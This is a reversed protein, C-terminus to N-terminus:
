PKKYKRFTYQKKESGIESFKLWAPTFKSDIPQAKIRNNEFDIDLVEYVKKFKNCILQFKVKKRRINQKHRMITM